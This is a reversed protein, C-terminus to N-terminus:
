LLTVTALSLSITKLQVIVFKIPHIYIAKNNLDSIFTSYRVSNKNNITSHYSDKVSVVGLYLHLAISGICGPLGLMSYQKMSNQRGRYGTVMGPVSPPLETDEGELRNVYARFLRNCEEFFKNAATESMYGSM